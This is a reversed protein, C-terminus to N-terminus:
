ADYVQLHNAALLGDVLRIHIYTHVFLSSSSSSSSQQLGTLRRDVDTSFGSNCLPLWATSAVSGGLSWIVGGTKSSAPGVEGLVRAGPGNV